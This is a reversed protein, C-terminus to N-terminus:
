LVVTAMETISLSSTNTALIADLRTHQAVESWVAHKVEMREPVAEIVVDADKVADPLSLTMNIKGIITPLDEQKLRGREVLRGLNKNIGAKAGDLFSQEIDRVTVSIGAQAAIQAIGHGMVGAGLIAIRRVEEPKM